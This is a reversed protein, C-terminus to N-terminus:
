RPGVAIPHYVPRRPVDPAGLVPPTSPLERVPEHGVLASADRRGSALVIADLDVWAPEATAPQLAFELTVMEGAYPTLDLVVSRWTDPPTAAGTRLLRAGARGALSVELTAYGAQYSGLRYAFSLRPREPPVRARTAVAARAAVGDQVSGLRVARRGDFADATRLEVTYGSTTWGAWNREFDGNALTSTLGAVLVIGDLGGGERVTRYVPQSPPRGDPPQAVLMYEGPALREFAFQGASDTRTTLEGAPGLVRVSAGAIPEDVDRVTGRLYAGGALASAARAANLIGFGREANWRVGDPREAHARLAETVAAGSATPQESILLAATASVHAAAFSTGTALTYRNGPQTTTIGVGPALLSLHDGYSSFPARGDRPTLAGVALVGDYAAPYMPAATGQNGSAAVVVADHDLAYRIAEHLVQSHRPGGLSLNIVRAGRAAAYVIGSAITGDDGSGSADLAKVILLTARPALGAIGRGNDAAAAVIGALMTGHSSGDAVADAGRRGTALDVSQESVAGPRAFEEHTADLGTDIIAVTVGYGRRPAADWAKAAGVRRLAWQDGNVFSPDNPQWAIRRVSNPEAHRVHPLLTLRRAVAESDDGPRLPVRLVHALPSDPWAPELRTGAQWGAKALHARVHALAGPEATVLVEAPARAGGGALAISRVPQLPLALLVTLALVVALPLCCRM